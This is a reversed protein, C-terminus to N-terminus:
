KGEMIDQIIRELYLKAEKIYHEPKAYRTMELTLFGSYGVSHLAGIFDHWDIVGYGPPLGYNVLGDGDRVHVSLIRKGLKKAALAAYERQILHWATDYTVGMDPSPIYDFMRLMADSNSVIVHAHGEVALKMGRAQVIGLCRRLVDMYNQWIADWDFPQPLQMSMKPETRDAGGAFPNIYNPPYSIPPPAVLGDMWHSVLNILSTGLDHGVAVAQEFLRFADERKAEDPSLMDQVMPTYVAFQSLQMNYSRYLGRLEKTKAATYYQELDERSHVILELGQFGLQGITSVADEYPAGYRPKTFAWAACGLKM